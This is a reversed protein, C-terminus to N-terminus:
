VPRLVQSLSLKIIYMHVHIHTYAVVVYLLERHYFFVTSCNLQFGSSAPSLQNSFQGSGFQPPERMENWKYMGVELNELYMCFSHPYVQPRLFKM